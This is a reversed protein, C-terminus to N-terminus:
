RAFPCSLYLGKKFSLHPPTRKFILWTMKSQVIKNISNIQSPKPTVDHSFSTNKNTFSTKLATQICYVPLAKLILRNLIPLTPYFIVFCATCFETSCGTFFTAQKIAKPFIHTWLANNNFIPAIKNHTNNDNAYNHSDNSQTPNKQFSLNNWHFGPFITFCSLLFSFGSCLFHFIYPLSSICFFTFKSTWVKFLHPSVQNIPVKGFELNLHSFQALSDILLKNSRGM